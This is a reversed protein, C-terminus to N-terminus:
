NASPKEVKDIVLVDVATKEATLKLGLQQQMADFLNPAAEASDTPPLRMPRGNFQSDDPLFTVNFDFKGTIGTQDVVPRDLVVMQLVAALTLMSGNLVNMTLGGAAPGFGVGPLSSGTLQTPTLKQGNKGVTMVFASLEKKDHHFILKFRDALLKQVMVRLQLTNPVGELDPVGDIDYRDKTIWDPAGIIQKLQVDYAFSILDGLSSNRTVFHRGNMTLGQMGVVGSNNPKITAVDFSPDANEPMQKAVVPVPIEWATADTVHQLVLPLPTGGQNWTGTLTTADPNLKGEYSGAIIPIVIKVTGSQVTIPGANFAQGNQDISYFKANLTGNDAKSIKVVLRLAKGVQLTGQWTGTIDQAHLACGALAVLAIIWLMLKKM